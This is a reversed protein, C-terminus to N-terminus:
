VVGGRRRLALVSLNPIDYGRSPKNAELSDSDHEEFHVEVMNEWGRLTKAACIESSGKLIDVHIM